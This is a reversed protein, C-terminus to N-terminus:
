LRARCSQPRPSGRGADVTKDASPTDGGGSPLSNRTLSQSCAGSFQLKPLTQRWASACAVLTRTRSCALRVRKLVFSSLFWTEEIATRGNCPAGRSILALQ